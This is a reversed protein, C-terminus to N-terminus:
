GYLKIFWSRAKNVCKQVLNTTKFVFTKMIVFNFVAMLATTAAISQYPTIGIIKILAISIYISLSSNAFLMLVYKIINKHLRGKGKFTFYKNLIFHFIITAAQALTISIQYTLEILSYFLYLCGYNVMFTILGVILFRLSESNNTLKVGLKLM